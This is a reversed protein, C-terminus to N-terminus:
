CDDRTTRSAIPSVNPFAMTVAIPSMRVPTLRKASAILAGSAPTSYRATAARRPATSSTM